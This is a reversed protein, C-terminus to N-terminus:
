MADLNMTLRNSSRFALTVSIPHAALETTVQEVTSKEVNVGGVELLKCGSSLTSGITTDAAGGRQLKTVVVGGEGDNAAELGFGLAGNRKQITVVAVSEAAAAPATLFSGSSTRQFPSGIPGAPPPPPPQGDEDDSGFHPPDVVSNPRSHELEKARPSYSSGAGSGRGALRSKFSGRAPSSTSDGTSQKTLQPSAPSPAVERTVSATFAVLGFTSDADCEMGDFFSAWTFTEGCLQSKDTESMKLYNKLESKSLKGDGSKDAAVFVRAAYEVGHSECLAFARPHATCGAISCHRPTPIKVAKAAAAASLM